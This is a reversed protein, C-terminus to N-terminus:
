NIPVRLTLAEQVLVTVVTGPAVQVERGKTALVTGAAGAVAGIAAGSGGGAVGGVIAGVGAGVGGKKVDDSKKDDAVLTVRATQIRHTEDGIAVRDFRFAISAKGKVRGSEKVEIVSGRIETGEPMATTGAVVVPKALAGKVVDEVISTNSALTSLVTVSLATGAPITVERFRPAPPPIPKPPPAPAPTSPAGATTAPAAAAPQTTVAPQTPQAATPQSPKSAADATADATKQPEAPSCATSLGAVVTLILLPKM